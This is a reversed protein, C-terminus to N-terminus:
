FCAINNRRPSTLLVGSASGLLEYSTVTMTYSVNATFATMKRGSRITFLKLGNVRRRANKAVRTLIQDLEKKSFEESSHMSIEPPVFLRM